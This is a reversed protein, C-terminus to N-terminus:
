IFLNHKALTKYGSMSVKDFIVFFWIMLARMKLNERMREPTVYFHLERRSGM